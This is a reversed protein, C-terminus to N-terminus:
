EEAAGNYVTRCNHRKIRFLIWRAESDEQSLGVGGDSDRGPVAWQSPSRFKLQRGQPGELRGM